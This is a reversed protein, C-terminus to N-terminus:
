VHARGIQDGDGDRDRLTNVCRNLADDCRDTTCAVGDDCSPPTGPVCGRMAPDCRESGNCVRGDDCLRHEPLHDCRDMEENCQDITCPVGDDCQPVSALVCGRFPACREVGTCFQGDDCMADRAEYVCRGTAMDCRDVTCPQGDDCRPDNESSCRPVEYCGRMDLRCIQGAPCRNDDPVSVCGRGLQCQEVTCAIGDDACMGDAPRHICGGVPSCEDITCAIGDDCDRAAVCSPADPEGDVRVVDPAVRDMSADGGVVPRGNCAMMSVLVLALWWPTVTVARM